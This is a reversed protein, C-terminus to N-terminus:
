HGLPDDVQAISIALMPKEGPDTGNRGTLLIRVNGTGLAGAAILTKVASAGAQMQERCTGLYEQAATAEKAASDRAASMFAAIKNQALAVKQQESESWAEPDDVDEPADQPIYGWAEEASEQADEIRKQSYADIAQAHEEFYTAVAKDLEEGAADQAVDDISIPGWM